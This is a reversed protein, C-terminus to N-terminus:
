PPAQSCCPGLTASEGRWRQRLRIRLAAAVQAALALRAALRLVEPAVVPELALSQARGEQHAELAALVEQARRRQLAAQHQVAALLQAPSVEERM